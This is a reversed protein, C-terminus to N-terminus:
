EINGSRLENLYIKYVTETASAHTAYFGLYRKWNIVALLANLANLDAVQINTSYDDEGPAAAPKTPLSISSGPLYTTSKLLGTLGGDVQRLGMGVDIFPIDHDHLWGMIMPREHADAAALFVFTADALLHINDMGLHEPHATIGTHM